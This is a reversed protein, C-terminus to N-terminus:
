RYAPPGDPPRPRPLAERALLELMVNLAQGKPHFFDGHRCESAMGLKCIGRTLSGTRDLWSWRPGRSRLMEFAFRNIQQVRAVTHPPVNGSDAGCLPTSAWVFAPRGRPWLGSYYEAYEDRGGIDWARELAQLLTGSYAELPNTQGAEVNRAEMLTAHNDKLAHWAGFGVVVLSPSGALHWRNSAGARLSALLPEIEAIDGWSSWAVTLRVGGSLLPLNVRLLPSYSDHCLCSCNRKVVCSKAIRTSRMCVHHLGHTSSAHTAHVLLPEARVSM